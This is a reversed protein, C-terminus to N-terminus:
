TQSYYTPIDVGKARLAAFSADMEAQTTVGLQWSRDHVEVLLRHLRETAVSRALCPVVDWEAGEIDMKVLVYDGVITNEYILRNLNVTPVTVKQHGSAQADPHSASMSSGWYNQAHSQTDLYFSTTAECDYAATAPLSHVRADATDLAQLQPTFRPNAEVLFAEWDGGNPCGQVPGFKNMMWEQLTNGNAAGLDIFICKPTTRETPTWSYSYTQCQCPAARRASEAATSNGATVFTAGSGTLTGVATGSAPSPPPWPAQALRQTQASASRRLRPGRAAAAVPAADPFAALLLLLRLPLLATKAIASARPAM